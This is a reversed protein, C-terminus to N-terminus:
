CPASKMFEIEASETPMQSKCFKFHAALPTSVSMRCVLIQKPDQCCLRESKSVVSHRTKRQNYGNKSNM